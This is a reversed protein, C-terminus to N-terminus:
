QTRGRRDAAIARLENETLAGLAFARFENISVLGRQLEESFQCFTAEKVGLGSSRSYEPLQKDRRRLEKWRDRRRLEKWGDFAIIAARISEFIKRQLSDEQCWVWESPVVMWALNIAFSLIM